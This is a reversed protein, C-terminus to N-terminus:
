ELQRDGSLFRHRAPQRARGLQDGLTSQDAQGTSAILRGDVSEIAAKFAQAEPGIRLLRICCAQGVPVEGLLHMGLRDDVGTQPRLVAPQDVRGGPGHAAHAPVAALVAKPMRRLVIARDMKM